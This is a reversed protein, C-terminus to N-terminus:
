LLRTIISLLPRINECIFGDSLELVLTGKERRTRNNNEIKELFHEWRLYVLLPNNQCTSSSYLYSMRVDAYQDGFNNRNEAKNRPIRYALERVNM